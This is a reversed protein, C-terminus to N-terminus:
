RNFDNYVSDFLLTKVLKPPRTFRVDIPDIKSHRIGNCRPQGCKLDYRGPNRPSRHLEWHLSTVSHKPRNKNPGSRVRVVRHVDMAAIKLDRSYMRRALDMCREM